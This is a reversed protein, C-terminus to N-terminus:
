PQSQPQHKATIEQKPLLKKEVDALLQCKMVIILSKTTEDSLSHAPFYDKIVFIYNTSSSIVLFSVYRSLTDLCSFFFISTPM